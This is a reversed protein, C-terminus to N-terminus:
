PKWMTALNFVLLGVVILIAVAIFFGLTIVLGESLYVNRPIRRDSPPGDGKGAHTHAHTYTHMFINHASTHAHM